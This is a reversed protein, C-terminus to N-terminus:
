VLFPNNAREEGVTTSPGHGSYVVVSDAKSLFATRISVILTDFDGGPLDTRGISGKFLVDGGIICQDEKSYFSVSAPSHGPTYIVDWQHQGLHLAEGPVLFLDPAPSPEAELGYMKAFQPYTELVILEGRHICLPAHPFSRKIFANGFVHDVHCHTNLIFKVELRNEQIYKVLQKQEDQTHCGPDVIAAERTHTDHVVYTNEQFPNFVFPTVVCM